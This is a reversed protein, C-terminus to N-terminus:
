KEEERQWMTNEFPNRVAITLKFYRNEIIQVRKREGKRRRELNLSININDNFLIALNEKQM